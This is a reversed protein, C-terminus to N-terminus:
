LSTLTVTSKLLLLLMLPPLYALEWVLPSKLITCLGTSLVGSSYVIHVNAEFFPKIEAISIILMLPHTLLLLVVVVVKNLNSM